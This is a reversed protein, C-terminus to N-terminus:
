KPWPFLSCLCWLRVSIWFLFVPYKNRLTNHNKRIIMNPLFSGFDWVLSLCKSDFGLDEAAFGLYKNM